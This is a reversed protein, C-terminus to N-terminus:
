RRPEAAECEAAWDRFAALGYPHGWISSLTTRHQLLTRGDAAGQFTIEWVPMPAMGPLLALLTARRDRERVVPQLLLGGEQHKETMCALMDRWDADATREELPAADRIAQVSQCGALLVAAIVLARM